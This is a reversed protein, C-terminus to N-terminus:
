GVLLPLSDRLKFADVYQQISDAIRDVVFTDPSPYEASLNQYLHQRAALVQPDTWVYRAGTAVLWEQRDPRLADFERGVEDGILWKQWRDSDVVATKLAQKFGSPTIDPQQVALNEERQCLNHLADLEAATFEPGVNAGGMGTEPYAEPNEVWDTYHGKILAGAPAVRDYLHRASEPDFTTTHLDTGVKGVVFCPWAHTLGVADLGERLGTLFRDFSAMDVLGGHVEETGVEYSVPPLGLRVRESESHAILEITRAAVVDIPPAEGPPLTRDVTPDIHLLDYGADLCATLTAKVEAM